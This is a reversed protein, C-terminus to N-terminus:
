HNESWWKTRFWCEDLWKFSRSLYEDHVNKQYFFLFNLIWGYTSQQASTWIKSWLAKLWNNLRLGDDMEEMCFVLQHYIINSHLKTQQGSDMRSRDLGFRQCFKSMSKVKLQYARSFIPPPIPRRSTFIWLGSPSTIQGQVYQFLVMCMTDMILSYSIEPLIWPWWEVWRIESPFSQSKYHSHRNM